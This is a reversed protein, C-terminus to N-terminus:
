QSDDITYAIAIVLGLAAIVSAVLIVMVIALSQSPVELWRLTGLLLALAFTIGLLTKIGFQLPPRNDPPEPPAAREQDSGGSATPLREHQDNRQATPPRKHQDDREM